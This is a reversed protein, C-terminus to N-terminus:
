APARELRSRADTLLDLRQRLRDTGFRDPNAEFVQRGLESGLQEAATVPGFKLVERLADIAVDLAARAGKRDSEALAGAQEAARDSAWLFEGADLIRSPEDAGYGEVTTEPVAFELRRQESCGPCAGQYVAVLRGDRRDLRFQPDFRGAYGCAHPHLDLYLRAEDLSRAVLV